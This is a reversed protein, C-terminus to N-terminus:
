QFAALKKDHFKAETIKKKLFNLEMTQFKKFFEQDLQYCFLLVINLVGKRIYTYMAIWM